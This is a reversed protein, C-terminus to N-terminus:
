KTQKQAEFSFHWRQCIRPLVKRSNKMKVDDLFSSFPIPYYQPVNKMDEPILGLKRIYRFILNHTFKTVNCSIVMQLILTKTSDWQISVGKM